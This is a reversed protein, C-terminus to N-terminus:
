CVLQVKVQARWETVRKDEWERVWRGVCWVGVWRGMGVHGGAWRGVQGGVRREVKWDGSAVWWEGSAIVIVIVIVISIEIVLLVGSPHLAIKHGLNM